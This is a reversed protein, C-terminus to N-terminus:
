LIPLNKEIARKTLINIAEASLVMEPLPGDGRETQILTLAMNSLQRVTLDRVHIAFEFDYTPHKKLTDFEEPTLLEGFFVKDMMRM